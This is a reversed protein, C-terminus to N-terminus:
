IDIWYTKLSISGLYEYSPGISFSFSQDKPWWGPDTFFRTIGGDLVLPAAEGLLFAAILLVVLNRTYVAGARALGFDAM